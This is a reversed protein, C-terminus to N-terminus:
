QALLAPCPGTYPGVEWRWPYVMNSPNWREKDDSWLNRNLPEFTQAYNLAKAHGDWFIFNSPGGKRPYSGRHTYLGDHWTPDPNGNPDSCGEQGLWGWKYHVDIAGWANENVAITDAPRSVKADSLPTFDVWSSVGPDAAWDAPVWTVDTTNIGYGIPMIRDPEIWWGEGQGNAQSPDTRSGPTLVSRPNSPCKWIQKNKIYPGVANKWVYDFGVFRPMVYTEDYDQAYMRLTTGLQRMNSLCSTLRASERAQAFVPFLIAALIAIIAIVVLLEILTFGHKRSCM